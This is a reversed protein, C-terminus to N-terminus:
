ESRLHGQVSLNIVVEDGVMPMGYLINWDSRNVTTTATWGTVKKKNFPHETFGNLKADLVVPKTIGNMSLDGTIKFENEGTKKWETSKFTINPHEEATFFDATQLHADRDKNGTDISNVPITIEVHSNDLNKLDLTLAADFDNFRGHVKNLLHQIRFTVGSHPVDIDYTEPAAQLSGATLWASLTCVSFLKISRISLIKM